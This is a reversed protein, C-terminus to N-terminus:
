STPGEGGAGEGSPSLTSNEVPSQGAGQQSEVGSGANGGTATSSQGTSSQSDAGTGNGSDTSSTSAGAGATDPPKPGVKVLTPRLVREHLKYGAQLVETVHPPGDSPVHDIAEHLSADFPKDEAEIETLGIRELTGRMQSHVMAIGSLWTLRRLSGPLTQWARDFNDLTPLLASVLSAVGFKEVEEREFQARRRYNALDAQARQWRDLNEQARKEAEEARTEAAKVKERMESLQRELERAEASGSAAPKETDNAGATEPPTQTTDTMSLFELELAPM